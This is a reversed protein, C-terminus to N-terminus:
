NCYRSRSRCQPQRARCWWRNITKYFIRFILNDNHIVVFQNYVSQKKKLYLLGKPYRESDRMPATITLMSTLATSRQNLSYITPELGSWTLGFVIFNTNTVERSLVCCLPSLTFHIPILMIYSNSESWYIWIKM